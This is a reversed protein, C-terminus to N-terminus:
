RYVEARGSSYIRDKTDTLVGVPYRYTIVDGGDSPLSAIVPRTGVRTLVVYSWPRVAAPFVDGVTLDPHDYTMTFTYRDLPEAVDVEAGGTAEARALVWQEAAARQPDIQYLEHYTGANNLHLQAGYGGLVQPILGVLSLYFVGALALAARTAWRHGLWSFLAISGAALFPGLLFLAQQFTRLVGYEASLSPLLVQLMMVVFSSGALLVIEQSPRWGRVRGLLVLVMGFLVLLQLMRAAGQRIVTNLTEVDIGIRELVDGAGTLSLPEATALEVPHRDLVDEPLYEGAAREAATEERVTEQYEALQEEPPPSPPAFLSYGVDASRDGPQGGFMASVLNVATRELHGGTQTIPGTWLMAMAAVAVLTFAGLVAPERRLVPYGGGGRLRRRLLGALVLAGRAALAIGILAILVYTTSYHSIVLGLAFFLTWTIRRQVAWRANTVMLITAGLCLFGIEQRIMFPMDTFFTPFAVFYITALLAVLTSGFRRAILYVMVPCLAFLVQFVVKFLVVGSLGTVASLVAPLITISLCANYADVFWGIGWQGHMQALQFVYYERQIDHGTIDWGRLSTMLLLALSLFYVTVLVVNQRIRFRWLIMLLFAAGIVVLGAATVIGDGGNNLRVAGCVALAVALPGLVVVVQERSTLHRRTRFRTRTAPVPRWWLLALLGADALGVFAPVAELPRDVGFWPLVWNLLLGALMLLIVGGVLSFVVAEQRSARTWNTRYWIMYAPLGLLLYLAAVPRLVPVDLDGLVLVHALVVPLYAAVRRRTWPRAPLRTRPRRVIVTEADVVPGPLGVPPSMPVTESEVGEGLAPIPRTLDDLSSDDLSDLGVPASDLSAPSVDTSM